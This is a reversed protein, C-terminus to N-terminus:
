MVHIKHSLTKQRPDSVGFHRISIKRPGVIQKMNLSQKQEKKDKQRVLGGGRILLVMVLDMSTESTIFDELLNDNGLRECRFELAFADTGLHRKKDAHPMHAIKECIMQKVDSIYINKVPVVIDFLKKSAKPERIHLLLRNPEPCPEAFDSPDDLFSQEIKFPYEADEPDILDIYDGISGISETDDGCESTENDSDAIQITAIPKESILRRRLYSPRYIGLPCISLWNQQSKNSM